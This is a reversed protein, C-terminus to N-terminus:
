SGAGPPRPGGDAIRAQALGAGVSGVHQTFVAGYSNATAANGGSRMTVSGCPSSASIQTRLPPSRKIAAYSLSARGYAGREAAARPAPWPM